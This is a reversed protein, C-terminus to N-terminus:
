AHLQTADMRGVDPANWSAIHLFRRSATENDFHSGVREFLVILRLVLM